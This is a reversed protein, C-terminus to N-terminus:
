YILFSKMRGVPHMVANLIANPGEFDEYMLTQLKCGLQTMENFKERSTALISDQSGQKLITYNIWIQITLFCAFM